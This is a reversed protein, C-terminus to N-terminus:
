PLIHYSKIYWLKIDYVTSMRKIFGDRLISLKAFWIAQNFVSAYTAFIISIRINGFLNGSQVCIRVQSTRDNQSRPLNGYNFVFVNYSWHANMGKMASRDSLSACILQISSQNLWQTRHSSVAFVIHNPYDKGNVFEYKESPDPEVVLWCHTRSTMANLEGPKRSSTDVPVM